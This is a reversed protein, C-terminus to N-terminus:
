KSKPYRAYYAKVQKGSMVKGSPSRFKNSGIKKFPM